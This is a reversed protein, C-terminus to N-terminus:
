QSPEGTEIAPPQVADAMAAILQAGFEIREAATPQTASKRGPETRLEMLVVPVRLEKWLVLMTASKGGYGPPRYPDFHTDRVLRDFLRQVSARAPEEDVASDLFESRTNHLNVLLDIRQGAGLWGVISKKVYWSEPMARLVAKDRLDIRDWHRNLDYGNANFRVGGTASGDPDVMPMFRFITRDRLAQARPDDSVVFRLAGEMTFSTGTEWAHQRAQLWVTRKEADSTEFNTVTIVHLDRGQASKGITEVRAHPSRDIEDRLSLFRSFPYPELHAIWVRDAVPRLKVTAEKAREDWIMEEVRRWHEGDESVWPHLKPSMPVTGPIDNYEGEWDTLTVTIERGAVHDMRFYYWTAQRNRGREDQQGRIRVRFTTEDITEVAGISAGEFATNFRIPERQGPSPVALSLMSFAGAAIAWGLARRFSFRFVNM